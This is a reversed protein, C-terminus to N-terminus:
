HKIIRAAQLINSVNHDSIAFHVNHRRDDLTTRGGPVGALPELDERRIFWLNTTDFRIVTPGGRVPDTWSLYPEPQKGPRRVAPAGPQYGLEVLGDYIAQLSAGHGYGKLRDLMAEAPSLASASPAENAANGTEDMGTAHIHVHTGPPIDGLYIHVHRDEAM